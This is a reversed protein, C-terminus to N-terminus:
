IRHYIKVVIKSKIFHLQEQTLKNKDLFVASKKSHFLLLYKKTEETKIFQAWLVKSEFTIGKAEISHEDFTYKVEHLLAPNSYYTRVSSYVLLVPLLLLFICLMLSTGPSANNDYTFAVFGLLLIGLITIFISMPKRYIYGFMFSTYEKKTILMTITFANM